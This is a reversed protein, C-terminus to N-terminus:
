RRKRVVVLLFALLLALVLVVAATTNFNGATSSSTGLAAGLTTATVALPVGGEVVYLELLYDTNPRLDQLQATTATMGGGGLTVPEEGAKSYDLQYQANEYISPWNVTMYSSTLEAVSITTTKASLVIAAQQVASGDVGRRLLVASYSDGPTLGTANVSSISDSIWGSDFVRTESAERTVHVRFEAENDEEGLGVGNDDWAVEAYSAYVKNVVFTASVSTKFEFDAIKTMVDGEKVFLEGFYTNNKTLGDVVVSRQDGEAVVDAHDVSSLVQGGAKELFKVQYEAGNYQNDWKVLAAQTSVSTIVSASLTTVSVSSQAVWKGYEKRYLTLNHTGNQSLGGLEVQKTLEAAPTSPDNVNFEASTVTDSTNKIHYTAAAAPETFAQVQLDASSNKAQNLSLIANKDTTVSVTDLLVDADNEKVFLQVTYTTDATLLKAVSELSKGVSVSPFKGPTQFVTKYQADPSVGGWSATFNTTAVDSITLASARTTFTKNAQSIFGVTMRLRDIRVKYTTGPKLGKARFNRTTDPTSAMLTGKGEFNEGVKEWYELKFDAEGDEEDAGVNATDWSLDAFSAGVTGVILDARASADFEFETVDVIRDVVQDGDSVPEVTSLVCFYTKTSSLGAVSGSWENNQLTIDGPEITRFPATGAERLTANQYVEVTYAATHTRTWKFIADESSTYTNVIPTERTRLPSTSSQKVWTENELRQLYFFYVNDALLGTALATGSEGGAVTVQTSRVVQDVLYNSSATIVRFTAPNTSPNEWSFSANTYMMSDAVYKLVALADTTAAMTHVLVNNPDKQANTTLSAVSAIQQVAADPPIFIQQSAAGTLIHEFFVDGNTNYMALKAGALRELCCDTRNFVVVSKIVQPVISVQWHEGARSATHTVSNNLWNGSTNGDIARSAVGGAAGGTATSSQTAVGGNKPNAANKGDVNWARVEALSVADGKANSYIRIIKCARPLSMNLRKRTHDVLMKKQFHQTKPLRYMDYLIM